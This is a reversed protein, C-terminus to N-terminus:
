GAYSSNRSDDSLNLNLPVAHAGEGENYLLREAAAGATVCLLGHIFEVNELNAIQQFQEVRM